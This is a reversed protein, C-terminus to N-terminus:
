LKVYCTIDRADIDVVQTFPHAESGPMYISTTLRGVSNVFLHGPHKLFLDKIIEWDGSLSNLSTTINILASVRSSNPDFVISQGEERLNQKWYGIQLGPEETSFVQMDAEDITLYASFPNHVMITTPMVHLLLQKLTLDANFWEIFPSTLGPFQSPSVFSRITPQLLPISTGAVVTGNGMDLGGRLSIPSVTGNIMASIFHDLSDATHATPQSINAKATHTMVGRPLSFSPLTVQGLKSNNFVFDLELTGLSHLSVNSPNEISINTTVEMWTSHTATIDYSNITFLSEGTTPSVFRNLGSFVLSSNTPIASLSLRGLPTDALAAAAALLSFSASHSLLLDDAFATFADINHSAVQLEAQVLSLNLCTPRTHATSLPPRPPPPPLPRGHLHHLQAVRHRAPRRLQHVAPPHRPQRAPCFCSPHLLLRPRFQQPLRHLLQENVSESDAVGRLGPGPVAATLHLASTTLASASGNAELSSDGALQVSVPRAHIFDDIFESVTAEDSGPWLEGTLTLFNPGPQIDLVEAQVRGLQDGKYSLLLASRQLTVAVPAPNFLSAAMSVTLGCPHFVCDIAGTINLGREQVPALSQLGPMSSSATIPLSTASLNGLVYSATIDTSGVVMLSLSVAPVLASVFAKYVSGNGLLRLEGTLNTRFTDAMGPVASVPVAGSLVAGMPQGQYMLVSDIAVTQLALPSHEGLPSNITLQLGANLLATMGSASPTLQLSEFTLSRVLNLENGPVATSINLGRMGANFLPISSADAAASAIVSATQGTLFLQILDHEARATTRALSGIMPLTNNGPVLAANISYMDGIYQDHFLILFHLTGLPSITFSSPNLITINLQVNASTANSSALSFSNVWSQSLGACGQVTVDKEFAVSSYTPLAFSGLYPTVSASASLHWTVTPQQLLKEVFGNFADMDDIRLDSSINVETDGDLHIPQVTMSGISPSYTVGDDELHSISVTMEHLQASFAGAHTISMSTNLHMMRAASDPHSISVSGITVDSAAVASSIIAPVIALFVILLVVTLVLAVILLVSAVWQPHSMLCGRTAGCCTYRLRKEGEVAKTRRASSTAADTTTSRGTEAEEVDDVEEEEEEGQEDDEREDEDDTRGDSPRRLASPPFASNISAADLLRERHLSM